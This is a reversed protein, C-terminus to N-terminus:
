TTLSRPMFLLSMVCGRRGRALLRRVSRGVIAGDVVEAQSTPIPSIPIRCWACRRGGFQTLEVPSLDDSYGSM